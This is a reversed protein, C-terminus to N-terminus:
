AVVAGQTPLNAALWGSIGASMVHANDYGMKRARRAATPAKMCMPNSCYFVLFASKDTPLDSDKYGVPDLNVAGPVHARIWSGRANVDIVTIPAAGEILAHLKSPSISKLGMFFAFM